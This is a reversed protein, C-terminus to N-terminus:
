RHDTTNADQSAHTGPGPSYKPAQLLLELRAYISLVPERSNLFAELDRNTESPRVHAALLKKAYFFWDITSVQEYSYQELFAIFRDLVEPHISTGITREALGELLLAKQHFFETEPEDKDSWASLQALFERARRLWASDDRNAPPNLGQLSLLLQPYIQSNWRSPSSSDINLGSDKKIESERIPDLNARKLEGLFRNNFQLIAKPLASRSGTSSQVGGCNSRKFNLVLYDRLAQVLARSDINKKALLLVLKSIADLLGDPESMLIEFSHADGDMNTLTAVYGPVIERLEWDTFNGTNLLEATPALELHSSQVSKLISTVFSARNGGAIERASFGHEVLTTVADYYSKPFFFWAENCSLQTIHPPPMSEFMARARQPNTSFIERVVRTQLSVRDLGTFRSAIAHLGQPTEEVNVGWPRRMVDDEAGSAKEFADDLVKSRLRDNRILGNEVLQLFLDSVFEPPLAAADNLLSRVQPATTTPVHSQVQPTNGRDVWSNLVGGRRFDQSVATSSLIGALMLLGFRM